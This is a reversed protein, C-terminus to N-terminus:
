AVCSGPRCLRSLNRRRGFAHLGYHDIGFRELEGRGIARAGAFLDVDEAGSGRLEAFNVAAAVADDRRGTGEEGVDEAAALRLRRLDRDVHVAIGDGVVGVPGGICSTLASWGRPGFRCSWQFYFSGKSSSKQYRQLCSSALDPRELVPHCLLSAMFSTERATEPEKRTISNATGERACTAESLGNGKVLLPAAVSIASRDSTASRRRHRHLRRLLDRRRGSRGLDDIFQRGLLHAVEVHRALLVDFRRLGELRKDSLFGVLATYRLLSPM